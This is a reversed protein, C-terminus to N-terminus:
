LGWEKLKAQRICEPCESAPVSSSAHVYKNKIVDLVERIGARFSIEAQTELQCVECDLGDCNKGELNKARYDRGAKLCLESTVVVTEKANM